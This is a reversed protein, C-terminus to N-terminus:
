EGSQVSGVERVMYLITWSLRMDSSKNDNYYGRAITGRNPPEAGSSGLHARVSATAMEDTTRIGTQGMGASWFM